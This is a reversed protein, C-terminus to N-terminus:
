ILGLLKRRLGKKTRRMPFINFGFNVMDRKLDSYGKSPVNVFIGQHLTGDIEHHRSLDPVESSNNLEALQAALGMDNRIAEVSQSKEEHTVAIFVVENNM